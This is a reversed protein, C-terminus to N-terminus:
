GEWSSMKTLLINMIKFYNDFYSPWASFLMEGKNPCPKHDNYFLM